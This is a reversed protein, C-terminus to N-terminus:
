AVGASLCNTSGDIVAALSPIDIVVVQALIEPMSIGDVSLPASEFRPSLTVEASQIQLQLGVNEPSNRGFKHM